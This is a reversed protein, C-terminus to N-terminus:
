ICTILYVQREQMRIVKFAFVIDRQLIYIFRVSNSKLHLTQHCFAGHSILKKM